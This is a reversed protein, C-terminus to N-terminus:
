GGSLVDIVIGRVYDELSQGNLDVGGTIELKKDLLLACGPGTLKVQGPQIQGEQEVGLVWVEDGAKLVLVKDGQRPRWGFGGPTCTRLWRREGGLNAATEEGSLTVEGLQVDRERAQGRREREWTWMM